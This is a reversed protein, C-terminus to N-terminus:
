CMDGLDPTEGYRRAENINSMDLQPIGSLLLTHFTRALLTYEAPGYEHTTCLQDFTFRAIGKIAEPVVVKRGRSVIETAQGRRNETLRAWV